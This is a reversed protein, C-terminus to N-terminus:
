MMKMEKKEGLFFNDAILSTKHGVNSIIMCIRDCVPGLASVWPVGRGRGV